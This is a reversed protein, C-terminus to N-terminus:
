RKEKDLRKETRKKQIEIIERDETSLKSAKSFMSSSSIASDCTRRSISSIISGREVFGCKQKKCILPEDFDEDNKLLISRKSISSKQSALYKM